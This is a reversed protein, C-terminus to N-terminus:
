IPRPPRLFADFSCIHAILPGNVRLLCVKAGRSPSTPLGRALACKELYITYLVLAAAPVSLVQPRPVIGAGSRRSDARAAGRARLYRRAARRPQLPARHGGPTRCCYGHAKKSSVPSWDRGVIPPDVSVGVVSACTHALPGIKWRIDLDWTWAETAKTGFLAASTRLHL